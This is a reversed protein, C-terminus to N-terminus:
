LKFEILYSESASYNPQVSNDGEEVKQAVELFRTMYVIETTYPTHDRRYRVTNDGVWDVTVYMWMPPHQEILISTLGNYKWRQGAEPLVIKDVVSASPKYELLKVPPSVVYKEWIKRCIKFFTLLRDSVEGEPDKRTDMWKPKNDNTKKELVM